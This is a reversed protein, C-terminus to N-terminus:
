TRTRIARVGRSQRRRITSIGVLWWYEWWTIALWWLATLAMWLATALPRPLVPVPTRSLIAPVNGDYFALLAAASILSYILATRRSLLLLFPFLWLFYQGSIGGYIAYFSMFILCVEQEIPLPTQSRQRQRFLVLLVAYAALFGVKSVFLPYNMVSVAIHQGTLLMKGHWLLMGWGQDPVGSYALLERLVPVAGHSVYPALLFVVPLMSVLVFAIKARLGSVRLVFLPLLLVPFSKIAIGAALCLAPAVIGRGRRTFYVALLVFFIPLSDFQGHLSTIMITLPNFVYLVLAALAVEFRAELLRYVLYGTAIDALIPLLTVCVVFPVHWAASALAAIVEVLAWPPPYPYIGHTNAYLHGGHLLTLAVRHYNATDETETSFFVSVFLRVLFGSSLLAFVVM